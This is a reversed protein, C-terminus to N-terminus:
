SLSGCQEDKGILEISVVGPLYQRPVDTAWLMRRRNWDTIMITHFGADGGLRIVQEPGYRKVDDNGVTNRPRM